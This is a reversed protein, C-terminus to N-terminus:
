DKLEFEVVSISSGISKWINSNKKRYGLKKAKEELAKQAEKESKYLVKDVYGGEYDYYTEVGYVKM